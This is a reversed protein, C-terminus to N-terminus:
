VKVIATEFRITRDIHSDFAGKVCRCSSHPDLYSHKPSFFSLPRRQCNPQRLFFECCGQCQRHVMTQHMKMNNWYANEVYTEALRGVARGVHM